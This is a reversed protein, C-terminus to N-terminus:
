ACCNIPIFYPLRLKPALNCMTTDIAQGAAYIGPSILPMEAFIPSAGCYNKGRQPIEAISPAAFVIQKIAGYAKLLNRGIKKRHFHSHSDM